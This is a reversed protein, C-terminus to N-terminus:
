EYHIADLIRTHAARRAPFVAAAQSIIVALVLAVLIGQVPVVFDLKYGSMATMGSLFVWTLTLGFVMGMFGGVLGMLVAEALVMRVVQARTMGIARLMGIERLREMVNMTLTNVVGLSAVVVAILALVDFMSFAQDMLQFARQRLSQNSELVLRYRKGYLDDILQQVGSVSAGPSVKVLYSNANDIRFYRRMDAWSGNVVLGQNYFDVVVAAVEFPRVGKHTKLNVTQGVKWGYKESLVSSIFLADGGALRQLARPEDTNSDSFVFGTIGSYALPDIAMFTLDEFKGDPKEVEVAFYRVPAVRDVGQVAELKRGVDARLPVTSNVYLDGGIYANMWTKLDVVFSETMGRVILIMSVGIMLAAVTLTTRLKSRQINRSGLSGSSGYFRVVLPRTFEEWRATVSPILLTGGLFLLFVTLSGLRFQVDYPFPNRFLVFTAVALMGLGLKWGNVLLWSEQKQARIRLAELPSIRGAQWAPIAAAALTTIVGVLTSFVLLDFQLPIRGLDQDLMVGMLQTLGNSLLVGLAVGATSGVVGLVGAEILVQTIVQRRTMGITRLMGFERTREVVTMAFANYILFAGVFLAIGSLFNLGIQYNGLMQTMRQGQAAPFVVSYKDGLRNQLEQRMTELNERGATKSDLLLDIQDLDSGRNFLAQLTKLPVLGFAGNNAQAAGEKKVLGVIKLRQIGGPTLLELRDGVSLDKEEAFSDVLVVENSDDVGQLFRGESLAYSRVQLERDPDIGHLMLGGASVGFFSLGIEGPTSEAAMASQARVLPVAAKVGSFSEATRLASDSFGTSSSAGGTITLNAKGSTDTFLRTISEMATQNTMGISLMGAVGLMIAFLSLGLRLPRTVMSRLTIWRTLM